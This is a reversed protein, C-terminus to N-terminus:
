FIHHNEEAGPEFGVARIRTLLTQLYRLWELPDLAQRLACRPSAACQTLQVPPPNPMTSTGHSVQGRDDEIAADLRSACYTAAVLMAQAVAEPDVTFLPRFSLSLDV